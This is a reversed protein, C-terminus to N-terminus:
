APSEREPEDHEGDESRTAETSTDEGEAVSEKLPDPVSGDLSPNDEPALDPVTHDENEPLADVGGPNPEGPEITPTPQPGLDAM